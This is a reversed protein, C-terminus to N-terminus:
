LSLLSKIKSIKNEISGSLFPHFCYLNVNYKRSIITGRIIGIKTDDNLIITKYLFNNNINEVITKKNNYIYKNFLIQDDISDTYNKKIIKDIISSNKETYKIYYFGCCLVFGIKRVIDKPLGFAISGIIDLNKKNSNICEVVNKFWFCDSDTHIIDQKNEKFIENIINLRFEWFKCKSQIKYPRYLTKIGRNTLNDLVKEDLCVVLLPLNLKNFNNYFINFIDLYKFDTFTVIIM